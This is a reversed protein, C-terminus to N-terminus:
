SFVQRLRPCMLSLSLLWDAFAVDQTSDLHIVVCSLCFSSSRVFSPPQQLHAPPSIFPPACLLDVAAISGQTVGDHHVCTM